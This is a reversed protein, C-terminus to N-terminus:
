AKRCQLYDGLAIEFDAKPMREALARHMLGAQSESALGNLPPDTDLYTPFPYGEAAAAIVASLELDTLTEDLLVPYLAAAMAARDIAELTRGMASGIQMLNAM